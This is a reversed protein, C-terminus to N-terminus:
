ATGAREVIEKARQINFDKLYNQWAENRPSWKFGAHKLKSRLEESPKGSFHLQIRNEDINEIFMVGSVEYEKNERSRLKELKEMRKKTARIQASSNSFLYAPISGPMKKSMEKLKAHYAEQKALKEALKTIADPDDSSISKNNEVSNAKNEYYEAKSELERSKSFGNNMKELDRRHGAESHHGVLIPQGMPIGSSIQQAADAARAGENKAKAAFDRYREIKKQRKEEYSNM